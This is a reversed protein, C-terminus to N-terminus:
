LVTLAKIEMNKDGNFQQNRIQEALFEEDRIFKISGFILVSILVQSSLIWGSLRQSNQAGLSVILACAISFLALGSLTLLVIITMNYIHSSVPYKSHKLVSIIIVIVLTVAVIITIPYAALICNCQYKNEYCVNFDDDM